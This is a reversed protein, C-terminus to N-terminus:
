CSGTLTLAISIKENMTCGLYLDGWVEHISIGVDIRDVPIHAM